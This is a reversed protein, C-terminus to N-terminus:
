AGDDSGPSFLDPNILQALDGLGQSLAALKRRFSAMEMTLLATQLPLDEPELPETNHLYPPLLAESM